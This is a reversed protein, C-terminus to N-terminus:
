KRHACVYVGPCGTKAGSRMWSPWRNKSIAYSKVKAKKGPRDPNFTEIADLLRLVGWSIIDEQLSSGPLGVGVDMEVEDPLAYVGIVSLSHVRCVSM